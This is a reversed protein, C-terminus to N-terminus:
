SSANEKEQIKRILTEVRWSGCFPPLGFYRGYSILQRHSMVDHPLKGDPYKARMRDWHTLKKPRERANQRAKLRMKRLHMNM